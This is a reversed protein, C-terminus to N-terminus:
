QRSTQRALEIQECCGRLMAKLQAMRATEEPRFRRYYVLSNQFQDLAKLWDKRYMYIFGIRYYADGRENDRCLKLMQEYLPLARDYQELNFHSEADAYYYFSLEQPSFQQLQPIVSDLYATANQYDWEYYHCVGIYARYRPNLRYHLDLPKLMLLAEHYKGSRFYELGM